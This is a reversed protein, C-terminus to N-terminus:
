KNNTNGFLIHLKEVIPFLAFLNFLSAKAQKCYARFPRDPRKSEAETFKKGTMPLCNVCLRFCSQVSCDCPLLCCNSHPFIM